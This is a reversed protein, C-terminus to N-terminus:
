RKLEKVPLGTNPDVSAMVRVAEKATYGVKMLAFAGQAGSGIAYPPDVEFGVTKGEYILLRGSTTVRLAICEAVSAPDFGEIEEDPACSLYDRLACVANFTGSGAFLSGDPLKWAKKVRSKIGNESTLQTDFAMALDKSVAITTM